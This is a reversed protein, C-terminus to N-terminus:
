KQGGGERGVIIFIVSVTITAAAFASLISPLYGVANTLNLVASPILTLLRVVGTVLQIAFSVLSSILEVFYNFFQLLTM